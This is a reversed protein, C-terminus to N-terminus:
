DEHLKVEMTDLNLLVALGLEPDWSPRFVICAINANENEKYSLYVAQLELTPLFKDLTDLNTESFSQDLSELSKFYQYATQYIKQGISKDCFMLKLYLDRDTETIFNEQVDSNGFVIPSLKDLCNVYRLAYLNLWFEDKHLLGVTKDLYCQDANISDPKIEKYDTFLKQKEIDEISEFLYAIFQRKNCVYHGYDIENQKYPDNLITEIKWVFDINDIIKYFYRDMKKAEIVFLEVVM